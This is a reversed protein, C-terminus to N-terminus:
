REVPVLGLAIAVDTLTEPPARGALLVPAPDSFCLLSVEGRRALWPSRPDDAVAVAGEPMPFPRDSRALIVDRGDVSLRTVVLGDEAPPPTEDGDAALRLVTAIPEPDRRGDAHLGVALLVAAVVMVTAAVAVAAIVRRRRPERSSRAATGVALEVRTRLAAPAAERLSAALARGRRAEEVAAWCSECGLMHEDWAAAATEDLEGELYAALAGEDHTGDDPRRHTEDATM